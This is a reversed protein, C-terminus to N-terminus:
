RASPELNGGWEGRQALRKGPAEVLILEGGRLVQLAVIEEALSQNFLTDMQEREAFPTDGVGVLLDGSRLGLERLVGDRTLNVRYCDIADPVFEVVGRAPVDIIMQQMPGKSHVRLLYRGAPLGEYEVLGEGDPESSVRRDWPSSDALVPRLDTSKTGFAPDLQVSLAHLPPLRVEVKNTGSVLDVVQSYLLHPSHHSGGQSAFNLRLEYAGPVFPGVRVVGDTEFAVARYALRERHTGDKGILFCVQVQERGGVQSAAIGSAQVNLFAPEEFRATVSEAGPVYSVRAKGYSEHRIEFEVTAGAPLGKGETGIAERLKDFDDFGIWYSGDSKAVPEVSSGLSSGELRYSAMVHIGRVPSGNPGYAWLLVGTGEEAPPLALSVESIRDEVLVETSCQAMWGRGAYVVYRGPALDLFRFSAHKPQVSQYKGQDRDLKAADSAASAIWVKCSGSLEEAPFVVRGRVGTVGRLQLVIPAPPLEAEISVKVEDSRLEQGVHARLVHDGYPLLIAKNTPTWTEDVWRDDAHTVQAANVQAASAASGDPMLVNLDVLLAPYADFAVVADPHVIDSQETAIRFGPLTATLRYYTAMADRMVYRGSADTVAERMWARRRRHHDAQGVLYADLDADTVDAFPFAPGHGMPVARVRVGALPVGDSRFVAGSLRGTGAPLPEAAVARIREELDGALPAAAPVSSAPLDENAAVPTGGGGRSGGQPEGKAGDEQATKAIVFGFVAGIIVGALLVAFLRM